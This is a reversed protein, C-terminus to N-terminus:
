SVPHPGDAEALNVIAVDVAETSGDPREIAVDTMPLFAQRRALHPGPTEDKRLHIRGVLRYGGVRMAVEVVRYREPPSSPNALPPPIVFLMDGPAVAVWADPAEAAGDPLFALDQGRLLMDTVRQGTSAITGRLEIEATVIRSAPSRTPAAPEHDTARLWPMASEM